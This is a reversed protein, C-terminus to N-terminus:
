SFVDLPERTGKLMQACLSGGRSGEKGVGAKKRAAPDDPGANSPGVCLCNPYHKRLWSFFLDQDRAYDSFSYGRPTGTGEGLNPENTFEAASIPVGYAESFSFIKEAEDPKWPEKAHHLGECNAVSIMLKGDVAKVFDLVGIWQERTLVNQYGDPVTGPSLKGEFDYYTKTAWTGSVRVWAKGLKKALYRLRANSLDAPPYIQMQNEGSADFAERGDIQAQTYERWFTGGTVEAFEINYSVLREDTRRIKKLASRLRLYEGM